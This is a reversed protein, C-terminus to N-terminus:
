LAGRRDGRAEEAARREDRGHGGDSLPALHDALNHARLSTRGGRVDVVTIACLAFPFSWFRELPLDLLSLLTLRFIGDHAVVISWPAHSVPTRYGPVPSDTAPSDGGPGLERFLRALGVRVREHADVLREGGPANYLTPLSRWRELLEGDTGVVDAHLRGEWAGQGIETFTPESRLRSEQQRAGIIEATRRARVLPSHWIATPAGVPVPLPASISVDALRDAVLTAQREGLTSLPPDSRGQFRGEAVWTSEGHRVLVLTADVAPVPAIDPELSEGSM